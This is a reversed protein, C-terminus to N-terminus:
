ITEHLNRAMAKTDEILPEDPCPGSQRQMCTPRLMSHQALPSGNASPEWQGLSLLCSTPLLGHAELAKLLRSCAALGRLLGQLDQM